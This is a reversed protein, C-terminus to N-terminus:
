PAERRLVAADRSAMKHGLHEVRRRTYNILFRLVWGFFQRRIEVGFDM